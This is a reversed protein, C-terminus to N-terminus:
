RKRKGKRGRPVHVSRRNERKPPLASRREGRRRPASPPGEPGEALRFDVTGGVPDAATCVVELPMGFSFVRGTRGGTLTMATEDYQWDEDPLAAVSVLGEVGGPLMVFVGFRTVGSVSATFQEGIHAQMYEALYRKEIERQATQAEIERRSAQEAARGAAAAARREELGGELLATLIRHVMLDPYRRIPSTFHCYYRAALGFHGLSRTDYRAKQMSRLVLNSVAPGQPTDRAEELLKQLSFNDGQRLSFGLPALMARLKDVKDQSPREHVRYVAPKGLGELHAAVCENACLMFSEIIKESEGQVHAQVAVPRGADDCLIQSEVSELELAGRLRRAKELVASLAAMDRLVPLIEGERAGDPQAGALLANCRRYTMRRVSRIVSPVITHEAVAGHADLTMICSLTLRDVGENLSCIGNSLQTPLMPIVQDAFYVSTGREWAAEDLPSRAPVYHSVHAIHVGLVWRGAGDRELSVADDLDKACDGDITFILRDRLDLRGALAAPPVQQPVAAAQELAQRPFEREIGHQWLIAEVAGRRDEAPGFVRRLAGTAEGRAGGFGTMAVGARDGDRVHRDGRGVVRIPGPLRDSDPVLWLERGRRRLTGTVTRNAREAVATIRAVRRGGERADEELVAKVRDGHWAGGQAGPPVFFDEGGEEPTFFGYGRGTAQYIGGLEGPSHEKEQM